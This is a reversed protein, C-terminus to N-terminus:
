DFLSAQRADGVAQWAAPRRFASCNLAPLGGRPLGCRASVKAIRQRILDAWPGTGHMRQGFRADYDRATHGAHPTRQAAEIGHLDQVRAMVRAARAPFHTELWQRFLPAVEWPLRLVTHHVSSAGARAAAEVIHEIDSDNIFPIIPAVNVGVAIGAGSLARVAQLRRAPSAARPELIRALAGDLTTISVSVWARGAQAAPAILDIDREIGASKTIVTYPHACDGLVQLVARTIRLRREIPQYADTVSGIAIPSPAYGPRALERELVSAANVKAILRTEFDLGPSLDLYSHTPRAYCYICGHECGRYPNLSLAFPIDPSTNRTLLSKVREETVSTAPPPAQEAAQAEDGLTAWGDDFVDRNDREFRHAIRVTTGRGKRSSPGHGSPMAPIIPIIRTPM